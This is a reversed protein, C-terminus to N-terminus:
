VCVCSLIKRYVLTSMCVYVVCLGSQSSNYKRIRVFYVCFFVCVFRCVFMCECEKKRECVSEERVSEERVCVRRERM